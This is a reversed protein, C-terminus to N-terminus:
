IVSSRTALWYCYKVSHGGPLKECTELEPISESEGQLFEELRIGVEDLRARMGGDPM